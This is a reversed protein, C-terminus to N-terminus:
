SLVQETSTAARRVPNFAGIRDALEMFDRQLQKLSFALVVVSEIEAWGDESAVPRARLTALAADVANFGADETAGRPLDGRSRLALASGALINQIAADAELLAPSLLLGSAGQLPTARNVMVIDHRLRRITNLLPAPDPYGSLYSAKERKADAAAAELKAIAARIRAFQGQIAAHDATFVSPQLLIRLAGAFLDLVHAAAQAAEGHARAPLVVLSVALGLVGGLVIEAVRDLAYHLLGIQLTSASFLVIVVTVPAIKFSPNISALFATPLLGLTLTAAADLRTGHPMISAILAGYLAGILTGIVRDIAAKLSGGVSSQVVLVATLLVWYGQPLPLVQILAFATLGAITIRLTLRAQGAHARLTAAIASVTPMTYNYTM